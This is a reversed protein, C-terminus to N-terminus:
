QIEKITILMKGKKEPDLGAYVYTIRPVVTYNDESLIGESVMADQIFKNSVSCWNDLDSKQRTRSLYEFLLEVRGLPPIQKLQSHMLDAYINKAQSLVMYHANRYFNLSLPIVKNKITKRPLTIYVPAQVLYVMKNEQSISM